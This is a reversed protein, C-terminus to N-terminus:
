IDVGVMDVTPFAWAFDDDGREHELLSPLHAVDGRNDSTLVKGRLVFNKGFKRAPSTQAAHAGASVADVIDLCVAVYRAVLRVEDDSSRIMSVPDDFGFALLVEVNGKFDFAQFLPTAVDVGGTV